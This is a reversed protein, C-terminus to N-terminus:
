AECAEVEPASDSESESSTVPVPTNHAEFLDWDNPEEPSTGIDEKGGDIKWENDEGVEKDDEQTRIASEETFTTTQLQFARSRTPRM